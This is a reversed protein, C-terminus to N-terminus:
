KKIKKLCFCLAEDGSLHTRKEDVVRGALGFLGESVQFVEPLVAGPFLIFLVRVRLSM